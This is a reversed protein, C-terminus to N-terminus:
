QNQARDRYGRFLRWELWEIFWLMREPNRERSRNMLYIM